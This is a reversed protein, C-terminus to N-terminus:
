PTALHCRFFCLSMKGVEVHIRARDVGEQDKVLFPPLTEIGKATPVNLFVFHGAGELIKIQLGTINESLYTANNPIPTIDDAGGVIIAVPIHIDKLSQVDLHQSGAPALLVMARILPEHYSRSAAVLDDHNYSAGQPLLEHTLPPTKAVGGALWLGTLGGLSFGLFGIREPDIAPGLVPDKLIENLVFSIDLPREWPRARIDSQNLYWTNGYHDVSAVIFGNAALYEPLWAIDVRSGNDGHSALVFPLKTGHRAIPADRVEGARRWLGIERNVPANAEVPYFIETVLPRGRVPDFFTKTQVGVRDPHQYEIEKDCATQCNPEATLAHCFFILSTLARRMDGKKIHVAKKTSM